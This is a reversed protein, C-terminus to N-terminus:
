GTEDPRLYGTAILDDLFKAETTSRVKDGSLIEIRQAMGRMFAAMSQSRGVRSQRRLHEIVAVADRGEVRDGDRDIFRLM